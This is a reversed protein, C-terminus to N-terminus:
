VRGLLKLVMASAYDSDDFKRLAKALITADHKSVTVSRHLHEAIRASLDNWGEPRTRAMTFQARTGKGLVPLKRTEIGAAQAIRAVSVRLFILEERDTM